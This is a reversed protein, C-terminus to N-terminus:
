FTTETGKPKDSVPTLQMGRNDYSFDGTSTLTDEAPHRTSIPTSVTKQDNELIFSSLNCSTM